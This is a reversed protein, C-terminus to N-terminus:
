NGSFIKKMFNRAALQGIMSPPLDWPDASMSMELGLFDTNVLCKGHEIDGDPTEITVHGTYLNNRKKVLDFETVEYDDMDIGNKECMVIFLDCAREEIARESFFWQYVAICVGVIVVFGLIGSAIEWFRKFGESDAKSEEKFFHFGCATCYESGISIEQGCRPCFMNTVREKLHRM